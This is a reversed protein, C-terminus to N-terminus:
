LETMAGPLGPHIWFWEWGVQSRRRGNELTSLSWDGWLEHVKGPRAPTTPTM